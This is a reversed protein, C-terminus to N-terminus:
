IQFGFKVKDLQLENKAKYTNKFWDELTSYKVIELYFNKAAPFSCFFGAGALSKLSKKKLIQKKM